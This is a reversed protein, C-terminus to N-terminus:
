TVVEGNGASEPCEALRGLDESDRVSESVNTSRRGNPVGGGLFIPPTM